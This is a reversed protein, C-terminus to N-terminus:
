RLSYGEKAEVYKVGKDTLFYVDAQSGTEPVLRTSESFIFGAEKLESIRKWIGRIGTDDEVNAYTAGDRHFAISMLAKWRQSGSRPYADIAGQRSTDPDGERFGGLQNETPDLAAPQREDVEGCAIIKYDIEEEDLTEEVQLELRESLSALEAGARNKIEICLAFYGTM